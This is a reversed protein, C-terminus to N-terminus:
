KRLYSKIFRPKGGLDNIICADWFKTSFLGLLKDGWHENIELYLGSKTNKKLQRLALFQISEYVRIPNETFLALTPEYDKVQPQMEQAEDPTIYPPNSVIINFKHDSAIQEAFLNGLEFHVEVQNKKANQKAVELASPSIDIASVNWDPREKKLSIAICGSGTGIDLVSIENEYKFDSLILDVLEETEPRPILVHKNVTFTSNYFDTEGIIYQLPEHRARRQVLPRLTNLEDQTLPRDFQLYLDLRKIKLAHSLLWEISLRPTPVKKETFFSTAWELMTLVTWENPPHNEPM